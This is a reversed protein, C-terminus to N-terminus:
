CSAPPASRRSPTATATSRSSASRGSCRPAWAGSCCSCRGSIKAGRELDLIGLETGIDWHPVRQHTATAARSRLGRGHGRRQRGRRCRRPRRAVPHEPHAAAPRAGVRRGAAAGRRGSAQVHEGLERSEAQLAEAEDVRGDRRLGGVEKSLQNVRARLEDREAALRRQREDLDRVEVLPELDEGRRALAAAVADFDTRIRRVDLMALLTALGGPGGPGLQPPGPERRYRRGTGREGDPGAM